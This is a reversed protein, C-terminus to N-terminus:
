FVKDFLVIEFVLWCRLMFSILVPFSLLKFVRPIPRRTSGGGKPSAEQREQGQGPSPHGNVFPFEEEFTLWKDNIRNKPGGRRKLTWTRERTWSKHKRLTDPLRSALNHNFPTFTSSTHKSVTPAHICTYSFAHSHLFLHRKTKLAHKFSKLSM